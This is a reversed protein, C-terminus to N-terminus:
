VFFCDIALLSEEFYPNEYCFFNLPSSREGRLSFSINLAEGKFGVL